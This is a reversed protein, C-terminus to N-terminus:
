LKPKPLDKRRSPRIWIGEKRYWYRPAAEAPVLTGDPAEFYMQNFGLPEVVEKKTEEKRERLPEANKPEEVQEVNETSETSNDISESPDILKNKNKSGKPRAM